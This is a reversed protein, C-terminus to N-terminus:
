RTPLSSSSGDARVVVRLTMRRSGQIAGLALLSMCIKYRHIERLMFVGM